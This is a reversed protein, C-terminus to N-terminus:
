LATARLRAPNPVFGISLISVVVPLDFCSPSARPRSDNATGLLEQLSASCVLSNETACRPSDAQERRLRTQVLLGGYWDM